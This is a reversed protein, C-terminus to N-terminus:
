SRKKAPCDSKKKRVSDKRVTSKNAEKQLFKEDLKIIRDDPHRHMNPDTKEKARIYDKASRYKATDKAQAHLAPVGALLAM